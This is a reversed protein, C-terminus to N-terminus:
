ASKESQRRRRRLSVADLQGIIKGLIKAKGGTPVALEKSCVNCKVVLTSHSFVPQRNGCSKCEVLLFSSRPQPILKEWEISM